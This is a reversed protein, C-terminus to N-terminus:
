EGEVDDRLFFLFFSNREGPMVRHIKVKDILKETMQTNWDRPTKLVLVKTQLHQENNAKHTKNQELLTNMIDIVGFSEDHEYAVSDLIEADRQLYMHLEQQRMDTGSVGGWPPDVYVVEQRLTQILEKYDGYKTQAPVADQKYKEKVVNVNWELCDFRTKNMEVTTVASFMPVDKTTKESMMTAVMFQMTDGGSGAGADTISLAKPTHGLQTFLEDKLFDLWRISDHGYSLSDAAEFDVKIDEPKICRQIIFGGYIKTKLSDALEQTTVKRAKAIAEFKVKNIIGFSIDALDMVNYPHGARLMAPSINAVVEPQGAKVSPVFGLGSGCVSAVWYPDPEAHAVCYEDPVVNADVLTSMSQRLPRM